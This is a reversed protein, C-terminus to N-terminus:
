TSVSIRAWFRSGSSPFYLSSMTASCRFSGAKWCWRALSSAAVQPRNRGWKKAFSSPIPTWLRWAMLAAM